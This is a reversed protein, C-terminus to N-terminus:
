HISNMKEESAGEGQEDYKGKILMKWKTYNAKIQSKIDINRHYEDELQDGFMSDLMEFNFKLITEDLQRKSIATSASNKAEVVAKQVLMRM